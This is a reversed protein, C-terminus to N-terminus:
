KKSHTHICLFRIFIISVEVLCLNHTKCSSSSKRWTRIVALCELFLSNFPEGMPCCDDAQLFASIDIFLPTLLTTIDQELLTLVSFLFQLNFLVLFMTIANGTLLPPTHLTHAHPKPNSCFHFQNMHSTGHVLVLSSLIHTPLLQPWFGFGVLLWVLSVMAVVMPIQVQSKDRLGLHQAEKQM